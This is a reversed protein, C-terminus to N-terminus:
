RESFADNGPIIIRRSARDRPNIRQARSDRTKKIPRTLHDGHLIRQSESGREAKIGHLPMRHGGIGVSVGRRFHVIRRGAADCRFIGEPMAGRVKKVHRSQWQVTLLTPVSYNCRPIATGTRRLPWASCQQSHRTSSQKSCACARGGCSSHVESHKRSLTVQTSTAGEITSNQLRHNATRPM